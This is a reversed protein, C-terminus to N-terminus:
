QARGEEAKMEFLRLYATEVQKSSFDSEQLNCILRERLPANGLLSAIGNALGEANMPVVVGTQGDTLQDAVTPYATAVIPKCLMKAENLIVSKGEFRSPQVFVDAQQIYPYPNNNEGLLFVCDTLSQEAIQRQLEGRLAGDGIIYWRFGIGLDKLIKSATIAIDFGKQPVLRGVSILKYGSASAYETPSYAAACSQIYSQSVLPPIQHMKGAFQPFAEKLISECEPTLTIVGDLKQFYPVDLKPDFGINRYDNQNWGYKKKANIKDVVYYVSEGDLYGCAIDYKRPDSRLIHRYFKMWRIQTKHNANRALMTSLATAVFRVLRISMKRISSLNEAAFRNYVTKLSEEPEIVRVSPPLQSLFGGEKKFLLLDTQVDPHGSLMYLLTLLSKEAGGPAFKPMVFLIKTM